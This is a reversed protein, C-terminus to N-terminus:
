KKVSFAYIRELKNEDRDSTNKVKLAKYAWKTPIKIGPNVILIKHRLIFKPMRSLVEGRSVAHYTGGGKTFFPVDSGLQLAIKRLLHRHQDKIKFHKTLIKLVSAADSSGGGLGAGLPINKQIRINIHVPEKIKFTKLFLEVAKYCINDEDNINRLNTEVTIKTKKSSRITVKILDYIRVTHFITEINHYGDKRKSLVRLGINIKAPSKASYSTIM